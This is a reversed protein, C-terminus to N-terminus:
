LSEKHEKELYMKKDAEKFFEEIDFDTSIITQSVGMSLSLPLKNESKFISVENKIYEKITLESNDQPNNKVIVFEDGGIRYCKVNSFEEALKLLIKATAKIIQDGTKHGLSNNIIRLNNIDIIILMVSKGIRNKIETFDHELATRNALLTFTDKFALKKYLKSKYLQNFKTSYNKLALIIQFLLFAISSAGLFPLFRFQSTLIYDTLAMIFPINAIGIAIIFTKNTLIRRKSIIPITIIFVIFALFLTQSYIQMEIFETIGFYTLIIQILINLMTLYTLIKLFLFQLKYRKNDKYTNIIFLLIPLPFFM